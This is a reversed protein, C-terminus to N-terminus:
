NKVLLWCNNLCEPIEQNRPFQFNMSTNVSTRWQDRDHALNTWGVYGYMKELTCRFIIKENVVLDEL